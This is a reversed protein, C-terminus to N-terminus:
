AKTSHEQIDKTQGDTQKDKHRRCFLKGYAKRRLAVREDMMLKIDGNAATLVNQLEVYASPLSLKGKAASPPPSPPISKATIFDTQCHSIQTWEFVSKCTCAFM